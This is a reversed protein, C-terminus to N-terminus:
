AQPEKKDAEIADLILEQQRQEVLGLLHYKEGPGSFSICQNGKAGRVMVCFMSSINGSEIDPM